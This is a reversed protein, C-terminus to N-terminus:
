RETVIREPHVGLLGLRQVCDAVMAAHGCVYVEPEALEATLEALHAQVWGRRGVWSASPQSLTPEYRFRSHSAALDELEHRWLLDTEARAGFLLTVPASGSGALDEALLARVPALGTGAAVFLVPHARTPRRVFRGRPGRLLVTDGARAAHLSSVRSAAIELEAPHAADPASAISYPAFADGTGMTMLEVYQGPRYAFAGAVRLRVARASPSLDDVAVVEARLEQM